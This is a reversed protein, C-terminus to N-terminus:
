PGSYPSAPNIDDVTTLQEPKPHKPKTIKQSRPNIFNPRVRVALKKRGPLRHRNYIYLAVRLFLMPLLRPKRLVPTAWCSYVM